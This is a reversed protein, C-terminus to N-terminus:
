IEYQSKFVEPFNIEGKKKNIKYVLESGWKEKYEKITLELASKKESCDKLNKSLYNLFDIVRENSKGDNFNDLHKKYKTWSSINDNISGEWNLQLVSWLKNMSTFIVKNEGLMNLDSVKWNDRDLYFTPKNYFSSEYGSTSGNLSAHISLDSIKSVSQYLNKKKLDIFIRNTKIAKEFLDRIGSINNLFNLSKKPKFILGLWKNELLKQLLFKYDNIIVESSTWRADKGTTFSIDFYSIIKKAGNSILLKKEELLNNDIINIQYDLPYGTTVLYSNNFNLKTRDHMIKKTMCFLVDSNTM